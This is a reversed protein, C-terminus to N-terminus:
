ESGSATWPLGNKGPYTQVLPYTPMETIVASAQPLV